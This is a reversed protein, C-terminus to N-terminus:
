NEQRARANVDNQWACSSINFDYNSFLNTSFQVIIM